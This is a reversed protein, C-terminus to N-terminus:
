KVFKAMTDLAKAKPHDLCYDIFQDTAAALKESSYQSTGKKGLLYGHLFGIAIDRDEGSYRMFDKCSFNKLDSSEKTQAFPTGSVGVCFAVAIVIFMLIRQFKSM